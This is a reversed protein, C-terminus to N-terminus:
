AFGEARVVIQEANAALESAMADVDLGEEARRLDIVRAKTAPHKPLFLSCCDDYPLISTEYTDIARATNVIDSKDFTILPRLVPLSSADEIVHLNELTQSAVQGLNEGTVLAKLHNNEAIKCATRMMMRRYLLVALPAPGHERLQKQVETFHVVHLRLERQYRALIRALSVVKEKSKDGTYPFAHFYIGALVCGRRLAAHGAVPSDIGGSLLLGVRGATAVPLGGPGPIVATSVFARSEGIEVQIRHDPKSMNASLGLENHIRGGVEMSIQLSGIPFRKDRRSTEVKFTENKPIDAAQRLAEAAIAEVDREVVIAPSMSHLGFLHELRDLVQQRVGAPHHVLFRLHLVELEAGTGELLRRCNKAFQKVFLRRNQGKLFIESVRLIITGANNSAESQM